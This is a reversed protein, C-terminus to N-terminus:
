CGYVWAAYALMLWCVNIYLIDSIGLTLLNGRGRGLAIGNNTLAQVVIKHPRTDAVNGFQTTHM